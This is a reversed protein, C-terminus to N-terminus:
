QAGYHRAIEMMTKINEIPTDAPVDCSTSLILFEEKLASEIENEIKIKDGNLLTITSVGGMKLTETKLTVDEISLIDAGLGDLSEIIPETEGCIHVGAILGSEKIKKILMKLPEFAFREFLVPSIVSASAMPDGIFIHVPIRTLKKIYEIQFDLAMGIMSKALIEDDLLLKLFEEMGYLFCALTFPGKISVFVPIDVRDKLLLTSKIIEETRDKSKLGIREIEQWKKDKTQFDRLCYKIRPYPKYELECGMAEAEVYPDSFVLVMDYRYLNYGYELVEALLRGDASVDKFQKKLLYACHDACVIPFIAFREERRIVKEVQSMKIM